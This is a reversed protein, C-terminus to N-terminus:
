FWFSNQTLQLRTVKSVIGWPCPVQSMAVVVVVGHDLRAFPLFSNRTEAPPRQSKEVVSSM